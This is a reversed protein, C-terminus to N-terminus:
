FVELIANEATELITNLQDSSTILHGESRSHILGDDEALPQDAPASLSM